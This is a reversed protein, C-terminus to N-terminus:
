FKNANDIMTAIRVRLFQKGGAATGTQHTEFVVREMGGGLEKGKGAAAGNIDLQTIGSTAGDTAPTWRTWTRLDTSREIIYDIGEENYANMYKLFSLRQKGDKKNITRPLAARRDNTLSDGGFARELLNSVGDGDSDVHDSDFLFKADEINSSGDGNFDDLKGGLRKLMRAAFKNRLTDYKEDYRREDYFSSKSPKRIKIERTVPAAANYSGNGAASAKILLTIEDKGTDFGTFGDSTKAFALIANKGDGKQKVVGRHGAGVIEYTVNVNSASSKAFRGLMIPKRSLPLDRLGGKEGMKFTIWQGDKNTVNFTRSEVTTQYANSSISAEVTVTGLSNGCTIMNGSVTASGQTVSFTPQIQLPKRSIADFAKARAPFTQGKGMDGIPDFLLLAPRKVLFTQEVPVAAIYESDGAQTAKVTVTGLGSFKVKTNNVITAINTGATVQFAVPLGSSASANLDLLQAFNQEGPNAFTITQPRTSLVKIVMTKAVAASYNNNGPQNVTVTVEGGSLPNLKGNSVEMISSDSTTYVLPLGSTAYSGELVFAPDFISTFKKGDAPDTGLNNAALTITQTGGFVPRSTKFPHDAPLSSASGWKHALYGEARRVSFDDLAGSFLMVEKIGGSLSNSLNGNGSRGIGLLLGGGSSPLNPVSSASVPSGVQATGNLIFESQGYNSGASRRFVGINLNSSMNANFGNSGDNFDFSGSRTLGVVQGATGANAGFHLFRGQGSASTQGAVVLTFGNSGSLSSPMNGSMYAGSNGQSGGFALEPVGNNVVYVPQISTNSQAPSNSSGSRDGWSSIQTKGGISLFDSASESLGDSNVDKADLWMILGSFSNPFPSYNSVTVTFTRSTAPNFGANGPQSATITATGAGVPNLRTNGSVLAVVNTNSSSYTVTLGSLAGTSVVSKAGPDFEFDGTDKNPWNPLTTTNTASLIWQDAKSVTVNKDVSPAAQWQGNGAQSATVTASGAGVIVLKTGNVEVVATNSSAYAVPLSSGATANLTVDADGYTKSGLTQNWTITQAQLTDDLVTLTRTVAPAAAYTADGGQTATITVSGGANLTAVNGAVSVINADDSAFSVALNSSATAVLTYTGSSLNQNPITAFTITQPVKEVTLTREVVPAANFSGNGDQSARITAVGTSVISVTGSSTVTAVGPTLSQYTVPLTSTATANLDFNASLANKNPIAPFTINQDARPTPTVIWTKSATAALWPAQGPQTATITVTGVKLATAVNGSFSVVSSDNSDFTFATLGSDSSADLTVTQGVQRDPISQLLVNQTGGFAPKAIKYTHSLPLLGTLGWKHALYGEVKHGVASNLVSDYAVIEAIQGAFDGGIKDFAAPAVSDTSNAKSEGNVFLEYEGSAVQWTVVNYAHSSVGSDLMAGGTRKLGFKAASTTASLNGGFPKVEATQTSSQKIVAFITKLNSAGVIDFSQGSTFSIVGKGNLGNDTYTPRLNATAQGANNTSSSRDKWQVLAAGDATSDPLANADIENGDLWLKLGPLSDSLLNYYGVTLIQAANGAANYAADGPQSATITTTGAARVKIKMSGPTTGEVSAVLPDSSTYTIPLTSSAVAGPDFDYDGISKDPIPSFAISQNLKTITVSTTVSPAVAYTGNGPQNATITVTGATKLQLRNYDGTGAGYVKAIMSANLEANYLRFDDLQGSFFASGASGIKVDGSATTNIATTGSGNTVVGDVYLKASGSNGGEPVTVAIHHWAGDALGSGGTISAGGFDVKAAGGPTLTVHFLTGTGAAGYNFLPKGPASTKFWGAFTRRGTGTIGKYGSAFAYDNSGDLTLANGFKGASWNTSGDSGILVATHSSSGSGSADAITTAGTENLKWWSDLNAQLTVALDAIAPDSVTYVVPLNSSASANLDVIQNISASSFDQGWAITQPTKNTVILQGDVFTLVYKDSAAGSPTVPYTGAQSNTQATTAITVGTTFAAAEDDGNLLGTIVYTLTPNAQGVNRTFDDGTITLPAKSVTVSRTLPIAGYMDNTGPAYTTLTATGAKKITVRNGTRVTVFDGNGAGYLTGIEGSTLVRNYIRVDDLMGKLRSGAGDGEIGLKLSASGNSVAPMTNQNKLTGDIYMRYNNSSGSGVTM